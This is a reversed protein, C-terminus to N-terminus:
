PLDKKPLGAVEAPSLRHLATPICPMPAVGPGQEGVKVDLDIPRCILDMGAAPTLILKPDPYRLEPCGGSFEMRYYDSVNVRFLVARESLAHNAQLESLRFCDADAGDRRAGAPGAPTEATAATPGAAALALALAARRWRELM